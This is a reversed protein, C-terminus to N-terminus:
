ALQSMSFIRSYNRLSLDPVSKRKSAIMDLFLPPAKEDLGGGLYTREHKGSAPNSSESCNSEPWRTKSSM